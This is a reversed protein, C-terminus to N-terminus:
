KKPKKKNNNKKGKLKSLKKSVKSKKDWGMAKQFSQKIKELREEKRKIESKDKADSFSVVNKDETM